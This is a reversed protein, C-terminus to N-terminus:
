LPRVDTLDRLEMDAIAADAMARILVLRDKAYKESGGLGDTAADSIKEFFRRYDM